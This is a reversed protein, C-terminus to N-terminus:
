VGDSFRWSIEYGLLHLIEINQYNKKQRIM